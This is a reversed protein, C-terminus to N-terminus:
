ARAAIAGGQAHAPRIGMGSELGRTRIGAPVPVLRSGALRRGPPNRSRRGGRRAANREDLSGAAHAHHIGGRYLCERCYAVHHYARTGQRVDNGGGAVGSAPRTFRHGEQTSYAHPFSVNPHSGGRNPSYQRLHLLAASVSADCPFPTGPAISTLCGSYGRGISIRPQMAARRPAARLIAQASASRGRDSM